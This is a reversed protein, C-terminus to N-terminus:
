ELGCGRFEYEYIYYNLSDYRLEIKFRQIPTGDPEYAEWARAKAINANKRTKANTERYCIALLRLVKQPESGTQINVNQIKENELKSVMLRYNM